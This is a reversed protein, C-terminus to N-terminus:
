TLNRLKTKIMYANEIYDKYIYRRGWYCIEGIREYQLEEAKNKNKFSENDMKGNRERNNGEKGDQM